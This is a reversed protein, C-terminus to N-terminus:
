LHNMPMSDDDGEYMDQDDEQDHSYFASFDSEADEDGFDGMREADWQRQVSADVGRPRTHRPGSDMMERVLPMFKGAGGRM